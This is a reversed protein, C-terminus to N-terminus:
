ICFYLHEGRQCGTTEPHQICYEDVTMGAACALCYANKAYCPTCDKATTQTNELIFQYLFADYHPIKTQITSIDLYLTNILFSKGGKTIKEGKDEIQVLMFKSAVMTFFSFAIIGRM